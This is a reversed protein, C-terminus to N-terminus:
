FHGGNITQKELIKSSVFKESTSDYILIDGDSRGTLDVDTLQDLTRTTLNAQNLMVKPKNRVIVSIRDAM